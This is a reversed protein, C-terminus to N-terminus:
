NNSRVRISMVQVPGKPSEKLEEKSQGVVPIRIDFSETCDPTTYEFWLSGMDSSRQANLRQKALADKYKIKSPISFAPVNWQLQVYHVEVPDIQVGQIEKTKENPLIMHYESLVHAEEPINFPTRSKLKDVNVELTKQVAAANSCREMQMKVAQRVFEM